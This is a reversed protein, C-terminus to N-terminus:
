KLRRLLRIPILYDGEDRYYKHGIKLITKGDKSHMIKTAPINKKKMDGV